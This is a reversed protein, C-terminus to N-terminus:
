GSCSECGPKCAEGAVVRETLARVTKQATSAALTRVYYSGTKLGYQWGTKFVARLVADSNNRLHINLSQSQDVFAGRMAARRIIEVQPIEWVTAYIDRVRQPIPDIGALSGDNALIRNKLDENWLGLETLHQVMNDNTVMFRGGLTSKAYINSHYPEFSENNGMIQSTSVTPMPAVVLSNRLGKDVVCACLEDWDYMGSFLSEYACPFLDQENDRWLHFQLLGESAPSEAFSSYPGLRGALECSEAIAAHYITEMIAVDIRAAVDSAFPIRLEGFVDALGQIGIALPKLWDNNHRCKPVPYSSVDVVQNLNRTCARAIEHLAQYDIATLPDVRYLKCRCSECAGCVGGVAERDCLPVLARKNIFKPLSISMLTCCAYSDATSYETIECCQGMLVGNFMGMHLKPETFCFTDTREAPTVSIISIFRASIQKPRLEPIVLRKPAYGLSRLKVLGGSSILIRYLEKCQYEKKRGKGDPMLKARADRMKTIKSDVGLTQLMLRVNRLFELEISAIQLQCSGANRAITGDGDSYGEFWRIRDEIHANIPVYFKEDIDIPLRVNTRRPGNPVSPIRKDLHPELLKKDDYLTIRPHPLMSMAACKGEPEDGPKALNAHRKCYTEGEQTDFQCRQPEMGTNEYTGDACFLGHTYPYKMREGEMITPLGYRILKDGIGLNSATKETINDKTGNTVYFKHYPTCDIDVGNSLTVRVIEQEIGTQAVLVRSFERGNWVNVHQGDLDRIPFQGRDTLVYTDGSVCLNSSQITGVNMQNSKRNVHDKHCVYPIGTLRQIEVIKDVVEKSEIRGVARGQREYLRYLASFARVRGQRDLNAGDTLDIAGELGLARVAGPRMGDYVVSLNKAENNSFLSIPEGAIWRRMFLDPVWMAYFLDRASADSSALPHKMEIFSRVDCHWPELYVAISGNRRGGQNWANALANLMILQRPIGSSNGGTGFIKSGNGRVQHMHVGIGGAFKSIISMDKQVDMIRDISDHTGLLFCSLLQQVRACANYLTPTAHTVYLRNMQRYCARVEREQDPTMRTNGFGGTCDVASTLSPRPATEDARRIGGYLAIAVRMLMYQPRDHVEGDVKQLYNGLLTKIGFYGYRYDADHEVMADLTDANLRIFEMVGEDFIKLVKRSYGPVICETTPMDCTSAQIDCMCQSFSATTNKHLNSVLLRSALKSYHPHTFKMNEAVNASIQDIEPTSIGDYMRAITEKAVLAYDVAADLPDADVCLKRLRCTVKNFDVPERGRNNRKVVHM